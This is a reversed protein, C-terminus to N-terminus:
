VYLSSLGYKIRRAVRTRVTRIAYKEARYATDADVREYYDDVIIGDENALGVYFRPGFLHPREGLVVRIGDVYESKHTINAM